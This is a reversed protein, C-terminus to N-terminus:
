SLRYHIERADSDVALDGFGFNVLINWNTVFRFVGGRFTVRNNRVEFRMQTLVVVIM